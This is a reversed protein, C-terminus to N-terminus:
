KLIKGEFYCTIGNNGATQLNTWSTGAVSWVKEGASLRLIRTLSTSVMNDQPPWSPAPFQHNSVSLDFGAAEGNAAGVVTPLSGRFLWCAVWVGHPPKDFLVNLHFEVTMDRDPQFYGSLPDSAVWPHFLGTDDWDVTDMRLPKTRDYQVFTQVQSMHAHFSDTM